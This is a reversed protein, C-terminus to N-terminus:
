GIKERRRPDTITPTKSRRKKLNALGGSQGPLRASPCHDLWQRHNDNSALRSLGVTTASAWMPQPQNDSLRNTIDISDVKIIDINPNGQGQNFQTELQIGKRRSQGDLM